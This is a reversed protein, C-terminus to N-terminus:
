LGRLHKGRCQEADPFGCVTATACSARPLLVGAAKSIFVKSLRSVARCRRECVLIPGGHRSAPFCFDSVMEVGDRIRFDVTIEKTKTTNLLLNNDRCWATLREM